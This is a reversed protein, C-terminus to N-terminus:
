EKRETDFIKKALDEDSESEIYIYGKTILYKARDLYVQQESTTLKDWDNIDTM